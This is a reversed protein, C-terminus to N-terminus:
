ELRQMYAYNLIAVSLIQQRCIAQNSDNAFLTRM